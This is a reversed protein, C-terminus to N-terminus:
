FPETRDPHSGTEWNEWPFFLDPHRKKMAETDLSWDFAFAEIEKLNDNIREYSLLQKQALHVLKRRADLYLAYQVDKSLPAFSTFSRHYAPILIQAM